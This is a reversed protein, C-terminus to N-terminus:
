RVLKMRLWWSIECSPMQHQTLVIFSHTCSSSAFSRGSSGDTGFGFSVGGKTIVRWIPALALATPLTVFSGVFAIGGGLNGGLLAHTLDAGAPWNRRGKAAQLISLANRTDTASDYRTTLAVGNVSFHTDVEKEYVLNIGSVLVDIYALAEDMTNASGPSNVVFDNDIEFYISIEYSYGLTNLERNNQQAEDVHNDAQMRRRVRDTPVELTDQFVSMPPPVFDPAPTVRVPANGQGSQFVDFVKGDKKSQLFGNTRGTNANVQLVADYDSDSSLSSTLVQIGNNATSTSDAFASVATLDLDLSEGNPMVLGKLAVRKRSNRGLLEQLISHLGGGLNDHAAIMAEPM